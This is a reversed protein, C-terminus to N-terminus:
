HFNYRTTIRIMSNPNEREDKATGPCQQILILAESYTHGESCTTFASESGYHSFPNSVPLLRSAGSSSGKQITLHYRPHEQPGSSVPPHLEHSQSAWIHGRSPSAQTEAHVSLPASGCCSGCLVQSLLTLFVLGKSTETGKSFPSLLEARRSFPM